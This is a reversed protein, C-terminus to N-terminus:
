PYHLSNHARTPSADGFCSQGPLRGCRALTAGILAVLAMGGLPLSLGHTAILALAAGGVVIAAIVVGWRVRRM